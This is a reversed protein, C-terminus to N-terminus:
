KETLENLRRWVDNVSVTVRNLGLATFVGMHPVHCHFAEIRVLAPVSMLSDRSVNRVDAEAFFGALDAYRGSLEEVMPAFLSRAWLVNRDKVRYHMDSRIHDPIVAADFSVQFRPKQGYRVAFEDPKYVSPYLLRPVSVEFTEYVRM